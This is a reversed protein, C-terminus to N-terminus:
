EALRGVSKALVTVCCKVKYTADIAAQAETAARILVLVARAIDTSSGWVADSFEIQKEIEANEKEKASGEGGAAGSAASPVM